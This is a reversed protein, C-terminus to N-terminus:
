KGAPKVAIGWPFYCHVRERVENTGTDIGVVSEGWFNAVYVRRGSSASAIGWPGGKLEFTTVTERRDADIVAVDGGSSTVYVMTPAACGAFVCLLLLLCTSRM